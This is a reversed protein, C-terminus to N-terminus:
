VVLVKTGKPFNGKIWDERSIEPKITKPEPIDDVSKELERSM